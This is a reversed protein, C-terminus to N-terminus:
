ELDSWVNQVDAYDELNEVFSEFKEREEDTIKKTMKPIRVLSAERVIYGKAAVADRVKALNQVETYLEIGAGDELEIEQIDEVGEIEMAEMMLSERDVEVLIDPQGFKGSPQMKGCRVEVRGKHEFNWSVSGSDGFTGGSNVFIQRIESVARNKNETLVDVMVSVGGPGFGEYVATEFNIAEGGNGIGAGRQIAREINAAPMSEAKAKDVLLRLSFNSDLDAGGDRAAITILQAYKSFVKGKKADNLAKKHKITDWKSHGSM